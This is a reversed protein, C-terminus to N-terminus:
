TDENELKKIRAIQKAQRKNLSVMKSKLERITSLYPFDTGTSKDNVNRSDTMEFAVDDVNEIDCINSSSLSTSSSGEAKVQHM